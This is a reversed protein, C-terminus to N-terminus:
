VWWGLSHLLSLDLPDCNWALRLLFLKCSELWYSFLQIHHCVGTMGAIASLMFYSYQLRPRRSCFFLLMRLELIVLIFSSPHPELPVAGAECTCPSAERGGLFILIYHFYVKYNISLEKWLALKISIYNVYWKIWASLTYLMILKLINVSNHM